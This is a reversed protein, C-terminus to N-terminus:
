VELEVDVKKALLRSIRQYHETVMTLTPVVDHRDPRQTSGSAQVFVTGDAGRNPTIVALPKEEALFARLQGQFEYRRLGVARAQATPVKYQELEELEADTMRPMAIKTAAVPPTPGAVPAATMVPLQAEVLLVIKGALKG